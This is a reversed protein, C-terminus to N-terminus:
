IIVSYTCLNKPSFIFQIRSIHEHYGFVVIIPRLLVLFHVENGVSFYCHYTTDAPCPFYITKTKRFNSESKRILIIKFQISIQQQICQM